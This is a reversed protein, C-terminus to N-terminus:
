SWADLGARSARHRVLLTWGLQPALVICAALAPRSQAAVLATSYGWAVFGWHVLTVAPASLGTRSAVQYLHGRHAQTIREGALARRALTFLVDWLIGALSLPVLLAGLRWSGDALGVAPLSLAFWGLLLGCVQSGVDGLFIQAKPYNFPLFGALGAGTMTATALLLPSQLRWALWGIALSALLASGSALGNLGDIFNIANTVLLLWCLAAFLLPVVLVGPPWVPMSVVLAGVSLLAAAAQAALKAQFGFQRLDDAWSVAALLLVALLLLLVAPWEGFQRPLLSLAAPVGLLIATVVGVGGGKPVPRDHASRRGPVDLVGVRIMRRVVVGSLLAALVALGLLEPVRAAMDQHTM